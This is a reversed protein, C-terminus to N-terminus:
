CVRSSAQSLADIILQRWAQGNCAATGPISQSGGFWPRNLNSSAWDIGVSGGDALKDVNTFWIEPAPAPALQESHPAPHIQMAIRPQVVASGTKVIRNPASLAATFADGRVASAPPNSKGFPVDVQFGIFSGIPARLVVRGLYEDVPLAANPIPSGPVALTPGAPVAAPWTKSQERAIKQGLPKLWPYLFMSGAEFAGSQTQVFAMSVVGALSLYDSNARFIQFNQRSACDVTLSKPLFARLGAAVCQVQQAAASRPLCLAAVSGASAGVFARRSFNQM